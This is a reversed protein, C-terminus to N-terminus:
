VMLYLILSFLGLGWGYFAFSAFGTKVALFRMTFIGGMAGGFAAAGAFLCGLLFKLSLGAFGSLVLGVLDLGMMAALYPATMLMVMDLLYQRDCRRLYGLSLMLAVRSLGPIAGLLACAGLLLGDLRSMAANQRDGGPARETGYTASAGLILWLGMGLLGIGFRGAFAYLGAGFLSPILAMGALRGDMVAATDPPRKRRSPPLTMLRMERRIHSIRQWYLLLVAGLAGCHVFFQLLPRTSDFDLLMPFLMRHASASVPTAESFGAVLGYFLCMLLHNGM